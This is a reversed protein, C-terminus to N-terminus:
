AMLITGKANEENDYNDIQSDYFIGSGYVPPPPHYGAESSFDSVFWAEGSGIQKKFAICREKGTEDSIIKRSELVTSDQFFRFFNGVFPGKLSKSISGMVGSFIPCYNNASFELSGPADSLGKIMENSVSFNFYKMTLENWKYSHNQFLYFLKGGSLVFDHIKNLSFEDFGGQDLIIIGKYLDTLLLESRLKVMHTFHVGEEIGLSMLKTITSKVDYSTLLAIKNDNSIAKNIIVVELEKQQIIREGDKLQLNLVEIGPTAERSFVFENDIIDRCSFSKSGVLIKLSLNKDVNNLVPVKIQYVIPEDSNTEIIYKSNFM